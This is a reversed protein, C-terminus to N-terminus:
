PNDTALPLTFSVRCGADVEGQAMVTGGHREIIKRTLALGMGLGDFERTTHLRQFAHFLKASYQPNFGAGNDRVTVTCLGGDTAQWTIDVTAVPRRATFKIANSLLHELVEQMLAADARLPPMDPAVHWALTREALAPALSALVDPMLEALDVAAL